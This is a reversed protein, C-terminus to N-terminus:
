FLLMIGNANAIFCPLYSLLLIVSLGRNLHIILLLIFLIDANFVPELCYCFLRLM